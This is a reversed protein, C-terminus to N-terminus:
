KSPTQHSPSKNRLRKTHSLFIRTVLFSMVYTTPYGIYMSQVVHVLPLFIPHLAFQLGVKNSFSVHTRGEMKATLVPVRGDDLFNNLAVSAANERLDTDKASIGFYNGTTALIFEKRPDDM